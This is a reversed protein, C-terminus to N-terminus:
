RYQDFTELLYEEPDVDIYPNIELFNEIFHETNSGYDIEELNEPLIIM